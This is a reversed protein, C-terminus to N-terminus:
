TASDGALDTCLLATRALLLLPVLVLFMTYLSTSNPECQMYHLIIYMCLVIPNLINIIYFLTCVYIFNELILVALLALRM